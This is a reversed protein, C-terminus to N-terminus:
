HFYSMIELHQCVIQCYLLINRHVIQFCIEALLLFVIVSLLLYSKTETDKKGYDM